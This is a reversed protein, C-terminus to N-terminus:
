ARRNRNRARSAFEGIENVRAVGFSLECIHDKGISCDLRELSYQQFVSLLFFQSSM